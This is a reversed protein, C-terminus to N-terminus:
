NIYELTIEIPNLFYNIKLKSNTDLLYPTYTHNREQILNNATVPCLLKIGGIIKCEIRINDLAIIIYKGINHESTPSFLYLELYNEEDEKLFNLKIEYIPSFYYFELGYRILFPIKISYPLVSITHGYLTYSETKTTPLIQYVAEELYLIICGVKAATTGPFYLLFCEIYGQNGNSNRLFVPFFKDSTVEDKIPINLKADLVIIGRSCAEKTLLYKIQLNYTNSEINPLFLATFFFLIFISRM